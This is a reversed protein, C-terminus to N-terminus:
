GATIRRAEMYYRKEEAEGMSFSKRPLPGNEQVWGFLSERAIVPLFFCGAGEAALKKNDEWGHIFDIRAAPESAKFRAFLEDVLGPPLKKVEPKYSIAWFQQGDYYGAKNQGAPSALLTQLDAETIPEIGAIEESAKLAATLGAIDRTFVVRHIPEFMLGPSHINVIEALAYRAPHALIEEQSKGAAALEQKTEEWRAKATALSHNGDGMAFFLPTDSNQDAITKDLLKELGSVISEVQAPQNIRWGQLRGGHQMLEVDYAPEFQTAQLALGEILTRASDQILIMIHPLELPAARRVALRPPIRDVITGETARILSKSDRAYNYRELDMAFLIGERTGSHATTRKVYILSEGKNELINGALYDAMTAHIKGIRAEIGPQELYIEPLTIRLTSPKDGVLADVENWYAHDSTYQDCAVVSWTALEVGAKPLLVEPIRIGLRELRGAFQENLSTM